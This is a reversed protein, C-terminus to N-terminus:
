PKSQYQDRCAASCFYHKRGGTETSVAADVTLYKGCVPDKVLDEGRRQPVPTGPRPPGTKLLKLFLRLFLAGLTLLLGLLFARVM